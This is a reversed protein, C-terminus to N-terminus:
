KEETPPKKTLKPSSSPSNTPSKSLALNAYPNKKEFPQHWPDPVFRPHQQQHTQQNQKRHIQMQNEKEETPHITGSHHSPPHPKKTEKHDFEHSHDMKEMLKQQNQMFQQETLQQATHQPNNLKQFENRPDIMKLLSQPLYQVHHELQQLTLNQHRHAKITDFFLSFEDTPRLNLERIVRDVANHVHQPDNHLSDIEEILIKSITHKTYQNLAKELEQFTVLGDNKENWSHFFLKLRQRPSGHELIFVGSVFDDCNIKGDHDSDLLEFLLEAIEFNAKPVMKLYAEIFSQKNLETEKKSHIEFLLKLRNLEENPINLESIPIVPNHGTGFLNIGFVSLLATSSSVTGFLVLNSNDKIKKITKTQFNRTKSYFKFGFNRRWFRNRFIFKWFM